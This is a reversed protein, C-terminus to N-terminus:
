LHRKDDIGFFNLKQPVLDYSEWSTNPLTESVM